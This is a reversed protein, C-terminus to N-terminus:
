LVRQLRRAAPFLPCSDPPRGARPHALELVRLWRNDAKDGAWAHCFEQITPPLSWHEALLVATQKANRGSFVPDRWGLLQPLSGLGHLLGVLYAEDPHVGDVEAAVARCAQGVERAHAWIEPLQNRQRSSLFAQQGVAALCAQVGLSSICDEIRVPRVEANEFERAALRLIQLTAGADSVVLASLIGLDVSFEQTRLEMLLLTEPLVPVAPCEDIAEAEARLRIPRGTRIDIAETKLM